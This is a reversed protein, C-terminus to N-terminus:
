TPRMKTTMTSVNEVGPPDARQLM